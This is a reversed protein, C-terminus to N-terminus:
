EIVLHYHTLLGALGEVSFFAGRLKNKSPDLQYYLATRFDVKELQTNEFTADRLDCNEFSGGSM